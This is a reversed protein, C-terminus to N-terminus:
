GNNVEVLAYEILSNEFWGYKRLTHLANMAKEKNLRKAKFLGMIVDPSGLPHINYIKATKRGQKNDTLLGQFKGELYGALVEAEGKGLGYSEEFRKLSRKNKIDTIHMKKDKVLRETLLADYHKKEKGEIVEGYVERPVSIDRWDLLAELVSAKALLIISCADAIIRM